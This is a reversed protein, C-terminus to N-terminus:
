NNQSWHDTREANSDRLPSLCQSSKKEAKRELEEGRAIQDAMKSVERDEHLAASFFNSFFKSTISISKPSRESHEPAGNKSLSIVLAQAQPKTKM